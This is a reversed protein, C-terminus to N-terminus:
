AGCGPFPATRMTQKLLRLALLPLLVRAFAWAIVHLRYKALADEQQM